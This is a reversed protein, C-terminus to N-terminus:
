SSTYVESWRNYKLFVKQFETLLKAFSTNLPFTLYTYEESIFFDPEGIFILGNISTPINEYDHNLDILLLHQELPQIDDSYLQLGTYIMDNSDLKSYINPNLIHLEDYFIGISLKM